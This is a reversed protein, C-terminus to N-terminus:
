ENIIIMGLAHNFKYKCQTLIFIIFKIKNETQKKWFYKYSILEMARIVFITAKLVLNSICFLTQCTVHCKTLMYVYIHTSNFIRCTNPGDILKHLYIPM